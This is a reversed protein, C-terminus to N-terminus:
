IKNHKSANISNIVMRGVVVWGGVWESMWESKIVM